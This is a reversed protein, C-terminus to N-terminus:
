KVGKIIDLLDEDTEDGYVFQADGEWLENGYSLDFGFEYETLDFFGDIGAEKRLAEVLKNKDEKKVTNTMM